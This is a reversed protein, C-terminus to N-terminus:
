SEQRKKSRSQSGGDKRRYRNRWETGRKEYCWISQWRWPQDMCGTLTQIHGPGRRGVGICGAWKTVAQLHPCWCPPRHYPWLAFSIYLCVRYVPPCTQVCFHDSICLHCYVAILSHCIIYLTHVKFFTDVWIYACTCIFPHMICDLQIHWLLTVSWWFVLSSILLLHHLLSDFFSFFFFNFLAATSPSHHLFNSLIFLFLTHMQYTNMVHKRVVFQLKIWSSSARM